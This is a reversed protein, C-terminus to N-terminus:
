QSWNMGKMVVIGISKKTHYLTNVLVSMQAMRSHGCKSMTWKSPQTKVQGPRDGTIRIEGFSSCLRHVFM